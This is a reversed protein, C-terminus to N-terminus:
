TDHGYITIVKDPHVKEVLENVPDIFEHAHEPMQAVLLEEGFEACQDELWAKFNEPTVEDGTVAALQPHQTLLVPACERRARPLQHTYLNDRTMFNLIDYIGDVHRKSVLKGTTISLVDGLHFLKTMFVDFGGDGRRMDSMYGVTRGEERYEILWYTNSM